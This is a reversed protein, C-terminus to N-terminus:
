NLKLENVSHTKEEEKLKTKHKFINLSLKSKRKNIGAETKVERIIIAHLNYTSSLIYSCWYLYFLFLVSTKSLLQSPRACMCLRLCTFLYMM